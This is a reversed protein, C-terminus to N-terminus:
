WLVEGSLFSRNGYEKQMASMHEPTFGKARLRFFTHIRADYLAEAQEFLELFTKQSKAGTWPHVWTRRDLNFPDRVFKYRSSPLMPSIFPKDLIRKEISRTMAKKQGTPDNVLRTGTEMWRFASRIIYPTVFVHYTHHYAFTLMISIVQREKCNLHITSDQHFKTPRMNKIKWLMRNDLETELYAHQGFYETHKPPNEPDYSTFAYVYPHVTCDLTYHGMFGVLYADAIALKRKDKEFFSRSELLNAFFTGTDQDHALAGLNTTHLLYSPLYYFFVDPGQLGLSFASHNSRLLRRVNQSTCRRYAELGFLYHTTFGPM